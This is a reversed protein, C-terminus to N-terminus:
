GYWPAGLVFSICTGRLEVSLESCCWLLMQHWDMAIMPTPSTWPSGTTLCGPQWGNLVDSSEYDNRQWPSNSLEWIIVVAHMCLHM